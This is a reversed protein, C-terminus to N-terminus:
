RANALEVGLRLRVRKYREMTTKNSAAKTHCLSVVGVAIISELLRWRVLSLFASTRHVVTEHVSTPKHAWQRAFTSCYSCM